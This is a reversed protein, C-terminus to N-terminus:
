GCVKDKVINKKKPRSVKKKKMVYNLTNTKWKNLLEFKIISGEDNVLCYDGKRNHYASYNYVKGDKMTYIIMAHNWDIRKIDVKNIYKLVLDRMQEWRPEDGGMEIMDFSSYRVVLEPLESEYERKLDNLDDIKKKIENEMEDGKEDSLRGMIIREEIKDIQRIYKNKQVDLNLIKHRIDEIKSKIQDKTMKNEIIEFGKVLSWALSDVINIAITCNHYDIGTIKNRDYDFPQTFYANLATNTRMMQNTESRIFIGKCLPEEMKKRSLPKSERKKRSGIRKKVALFTDDDVIKPYTKTGVYSDNRLINTVKVYVERKTLDPFLGIEYVDKSVEPLSKEVARGYVDRIINAKDEDIYAKKNEIRYGYPCTGGCFYGMEKKIKKGRILREKKIMMESESLSSFLSFMISASQNMKGDNDLLRMYPKLIVLQVHREILYDRISYLVKPRRSIRSIEYCIVTEYLGTDVLRKLENLGHREYEDLCIASEKDEITAWSDYGMRKAEDILENTQQDLDQRLTSVRSFLICKKM